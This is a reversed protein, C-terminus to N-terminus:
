EPGQGETNGTTGYLHHGRTAGSEVHGPEACLNKTGGRPLTVHHDDGSGDGLLHHGADLGEIVLHRFRLPDHGQPVARDGAAGKGKFPLVANDESGVLEQRDIYVYGTTRRAGLGEQLPNDFKFM